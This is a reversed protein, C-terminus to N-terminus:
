KAEGEWCTVGDPGVLAGHATGAPLELRDGARMEIPPRGAPTFTISGRAVYLIKRFPHDHVAYDAGPGASWEYCLDAEARLRAEVGNDM